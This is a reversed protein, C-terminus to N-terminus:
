LCVTGTEVRIFIGQHITSTAGSNSDAATARLDWTQKYCWAQATAIVGSPGVILTQNSQGSAVCFKDAPVTLPSLQANTLAISSTCTPVDVQGIYDIKGDNNIDVSIAASAPAATFNSSILREIAQQAISSAEERFQANGVVQISSTTSNISSVAILTLLVLMILAVMLTSGRQQKIPSM